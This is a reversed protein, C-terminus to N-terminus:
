VADVADYEQQRVQEKLVNDEGLDFRWREKEATRFDAKQVTEEVM